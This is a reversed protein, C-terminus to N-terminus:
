NKTFNQGTQNAGSINVNRFAPTFTFGTMSPTVTYAGSPLGTFTYSGSANTTTQANAAGSLTVTVGPMPARTGRIGPKTVTGAISYTQVALASAATFNIDTVSANDVTVSISPPTFTYGALSPTVIYSGNALGSFTFIGSANTSTTSGATGSVTVTVGPLAMYGRSLPRGITGSISYTQAVYEDAGMDVVSVGDVNGDVIREGGDMDSAPLSPDTNDGADIAPSGYGIHYNGNLPDIFLPDASINGNIGTQDACIGGYASGTPSFIDNATMIPANLDNSDGCFVAAQGLKAIIINNTLKAMADYGDAFIGSGEQADNDAITNNVLIPGYASNPVSWYIGGGELARNDFILNSVILADSYNVMSIGGGWGSSSNGSIINGRIIPQGAAFLAIGGGDSGTVNDSIINDLIQTAAAGGVSIGSGGIGGSCGAQANNTITNKQIVPSGFDVSIGAGECAKNNIIANNMIHPSSYRIWIGGGNGFGMTDFGSRGNSITFGDLVSAPGEGSIFKVVSDANDGDIVTIEPGAESKVTIYKGYFDINEFYTGPAVLVTDGDVAANIAAQITSFSRGPVRITKPASPPDVIGSNFRVEGRLAPTVGECHQEFAAAFAIIEDGTGYIIEKVEFNGTLENCGRGDGYVSLGPVGPAQFPFRTANVYTGVAIMRNDPAAFDLHWSHDWSPTHFAVSVGNDYNRTATFVGDTAVYDYRLGAGIYDGRDSKMKLFTEASDAHGAAILFATISAIVFLHFPKLHGSNCFLSHKM